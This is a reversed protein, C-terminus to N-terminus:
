PAVIRCGPRDFQCPYRCHFLTPLLPRLGTRHISACLGAFAALSTILRVGVPLVTEGSEGRAILDTLGIAALMALGVQSILRYRSPCRFNGILPLKAMLVYLGGHKGMCIIWGLFVLAMGAILVPRFLPLRRFRSVAWTAMLVTFLGNYMDEETANLKLQRERTFWGNQAVYPLIVHIFNYPHLSGLM